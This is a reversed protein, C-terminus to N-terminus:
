AGLNKFYKITKAKCANEWEKTYSQRYTYKNAQYHGDLYSYKKRDAYSCVSCIERVIVPIIDIQSKNFIDILISEFPIFFDDSKYKNKSNSLDINTRVFRPYQEGDWIESVVERGNDLFSFKLTYTSNETNEKTTKIYDAKNFYENYPTTQEGDWTYVNETDRCVIFSHPSLNLGNIRQKMDAETDFVQPATNWLYMRSKAQLDDQILKVCNRFTELFATSQVSCENFGNIRFYRQCIVNGNIALIFEFREKRAENEARNKEAM